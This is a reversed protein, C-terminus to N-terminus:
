RVFLFYDFAARGVQAIAEERDEVDYRSEKVFAVVVVHGAGHPLTVIGVDNTTGGITGTKHAVEADETLHGRLRGRGTTSRGMIDILLASSDPNLLEGRFLAALLRTMDRPTSTDKPDVDFRDSAEERADAGVLSLREGFAEPSREEEPGLDYVGLYDAILEETPRDVRIGAFGLEKMRDTVAPGGGALELVMDTASNDSILLMLELLNRVSLIVGPDDFLSTLTGSGPHLDNPEVEVMQSLDVDGAEVRSMLQIAIPVKYSSAMPFAEDGNLYVERGSEIHLAGVGMVGGSLEALRTFEQELIALSDEAAVGLSGGALLAIVLGHFWVKSRWRGTGVAALTM